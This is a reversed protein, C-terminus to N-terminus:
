REHGPHGNGPLSKLLRAQERFGGRVPTIAALWDDQLQSVFSKWRKTSNKKDIWVRQLNERYSAATSFSILDLVVFLASSGSQAGASPVGGDSDLQACREGHHYFYQNEVLGAQQM